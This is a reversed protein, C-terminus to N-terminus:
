KKMQQVNSRCSLIRSVYDRGWVVGHLHPHSLGKTLIGRFAIDTKCLKKLGGFWHVLNQQVRGIDRVGSGMTLTLFYEGPGGIIWDHVGQRFSEYYGESVAELSLRDGGKLNYRERSM